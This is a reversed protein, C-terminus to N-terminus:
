AQSVDVALGVYILNFRGKVGFVSDDFVQCLLSKTFGYGGLFTQHRKIIHVKNHIKKNDM